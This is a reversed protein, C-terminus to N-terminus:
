NPSQRPRSSFHLIGFGDDSLLSSLPVSLIIFPFLKPLGEKEEPEFGKGIEFTKQLPPIM